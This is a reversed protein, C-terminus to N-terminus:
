SGLTRNVRAVDSRLQDIAANLNFTNLVKHYNSQTPQADGLIELSNALTQAINRAATLATQPATFGHGVALINAYAHIQGGLKRDASELCMVPSSAAKCTPVKALYDTLATQVTADANKLSSDPSRSSSSPGSGCSAVVLPAVALALALALALAWRARGFIHPGPRIVDSFRPAV